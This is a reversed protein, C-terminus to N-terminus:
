IICLKTTGKKILFYIIDLVCVGHPEPAVGWFFINQM